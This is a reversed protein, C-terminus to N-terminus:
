HNSDWEQRPVQLQSLGQSTPFCRFGPLALVSKFLTANEKNRLKSHACFLSYWITHKSVELLKFSASLGIGLLLECHGLSSQDKKRCCSWLCPGDMLKERSGSAPFLVCLSGPSHTMLCLLLRLLSRSLSRPGFGAWRLLPSHVAWSSFSNYGAQDVQM